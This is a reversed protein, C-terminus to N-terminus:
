PEPELQTSGYMVMVTRGRMPITDLGVLGAFITTVTYEVTVTIPQKVQRADWAPEITILSTTTDTLDVGSNAAEHTVAALIFDDIADTHEMRAAFRAGERAANIIVIYSNFARGFDAIAALLLLLIPLILAMEVLNAGREKDTHRSRLSKQRV